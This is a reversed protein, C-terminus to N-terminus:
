WYADGVGSPSLDLYPGYNYGPMTYGGVYPPGSGPYYPPGIGSYYPPGVGPYFPVGLYASGYATAYGYPTLPVDYYYYGRWAEAVNPTALMVVSVVVACGIMWFVVREM